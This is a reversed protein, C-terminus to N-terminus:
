VGSSRTSAAFLRPRGPACGPSAVNTSPKMAGGNPWACPLPRRRKPFLPSHQAWAKSNTRSQLTKRAFDRGSANRRRRSCERIRGRTSPFAIIPTAFVSSGRGADFALAIEGRGLVSGYHDGLVPLLLKGRLEDPARDWAIDFFGAHESARGNELVDLWRPNDAGLVGVHNPVMDLVQGMGHARLAACLRDFAARDGIEPNLANHDVIDYGHASGTRAKFYPSAYIHSVGLAALYPVLETAQAFGFERNFQLRYTARPVDASVASANAPPLSAPARAVACADNQLRAFRQARIM